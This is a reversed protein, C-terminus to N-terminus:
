NRPNKLRNLRHPLDARIFDKEYQFGLKEMVRLSQRNTSMTFCVINDLNLVNLAYDIAFEGIEVALGKGWYKKSLSYTLEIEAKNEVTTHNLGGEGIFDQTEKDFWVFPGFRYKDWNATDRILIGNIGEESLKIGFCKIFDPDHFMALYIDYCIPQPIYGHLRTTIVNPKHLKFDFFALKDIKRCFENKAEAYLGTDDFQKALTLKHTEYEKAYNSHQRLYNRFLIHREWWASPYNVLHIQHTRNGAADNKQFYRRFPLESEFDPRYVYGLTELKNIHYNTFIDLSNIGVLIDIIPKAYIGPIATSGIHEIHTAIKGLALQIKEKEEAFLKPWIPNYPLLTIM